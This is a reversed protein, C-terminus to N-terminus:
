AAAQPESVPEARPVRITFTTGEGRTSEVDISGGAENVLRRCISLGLGSSSGEAAPRSEGRVFPEFVQDIISDDIGCGTDTVRITVFPQGGQETNWTSCEAHISISGPQPLIAARANLILNLLIQELAVPRMQTWAAAPVDSELAIGDRELPRALCALSDRVAQRVNAIEDEDGRLFGLMSSAITSARETGDVAKQLAKQVLATDEPSALALHAYSMIPTLLNNFEHAISGALTGLMALRQAQALEQEVRHLSDELQQIHEILSGPDGTQPAHPKM